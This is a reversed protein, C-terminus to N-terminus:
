IDPGAASPRDWSMSKTMKFFTNAKIGNELALDILADKLQVDHDHPADDLAQELAALIRRLDTHPVPKGGHTQYSYEIAITRWAEEVLEYDPRQMRSLKRSRTSARARKNM